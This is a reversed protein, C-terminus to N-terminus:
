FIKCTDVRKLSSGIIKGQSTVPKSVQKSSGHRKMKEQLNASKPKNQMLGYTSSPGESVKGDDESKSLKKKAIFCPKIMGMMISTERSLVNPTNDQNMVEM